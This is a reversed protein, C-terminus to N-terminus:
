RLHTLMEGLTHGFLEAAYLAEELSNAASGIEVLLSAPSTHQNFRERRLNIRRALGPYRVQM